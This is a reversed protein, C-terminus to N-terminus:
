GEKEKKNLFKTLAFYIITFVLIILTLVVSIAAGKSYQLDSFSYKYALLMLSMSSYNDMGGIVLPEYFVQFVSIIQLVLLTLITNKMEPLIIHIFRKLPSAGDIRAAEYLNGDIQQFNSLYILSTAGAGKWTMALVILPIIINTDSAWRRPTGGFAKVIVNLIGTDADSYINKFLFVVAIGSIMCPVYILIRFMGKAHFCESLLFGIIMPTFFGLILSWLIYVFTNQLAQLFNVDKFIEKYNELFVFNTYKFSVPSFNEFFSLKFIKYIPIWVFFAFLVLSPVMLGWAVLNGKIKQWKIKKKINDM